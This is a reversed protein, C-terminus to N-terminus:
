HQENPHCTPYVGYEAYWGSPTTNYEAKICREYTEGALAVAADHASVVKCLAFVLLVAIAGLLFHQTSAYNTLKM